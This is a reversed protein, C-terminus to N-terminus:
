RGTFSPKRRQQFAAVGEAADASRSCEAQAHAEWGLMDEFGVELARQMGRKTRAMALPPGAVLARLYAWTEDSLREAPVLRSVLGLEYARGGDVLEASLMLDLARAPGVLRPLLWLMGFDGTLGVKHFTAGLRATPTSIRVDCALALALGAGIAVGDIQAVVPKELARIAAVTAADHLLNAERVALPQALREPMTKLDGGASFAGGSGAILVARVTDDSAARGVADGIAQWQEPGLANKVEPRDLTIVGVQERVEYRIRPDSM